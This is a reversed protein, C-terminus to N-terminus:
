FHSIELEFRKKKWGVLKGVGEDLENQLKCVVIKSRSKETKSGNIALHIEDYKM